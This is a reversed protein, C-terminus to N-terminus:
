AFSLEGAHGHLFAVACILQRSISQAIILGLAGFSTLIYNLTPGRALSLVLYHISLNNDGKTGETQFQHLLRILNPHHYKSTLESLVAIERLAYADGQTIKVAVHDDDVDAEGSSGRKKRKAMWVSAFGGKGIVRVPSYLDKIEKPWSDPSSLQTSM